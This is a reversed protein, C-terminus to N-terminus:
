SSRSALPLIMITGISTEKVIANLKPPVDGAGAEVPPNLKPPPPAVVVAAAGVGDDDDSNPPPPPPPPNNPLLM